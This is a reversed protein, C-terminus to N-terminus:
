KQEGREKLYKEAEEFLVKDVWRSVNLGLERLKHIAAITPMKLSFTKSVTQKGQALLTKRNEMKFIRRNKFEFLLKIPIIIKVIKVISMIKLYTNIGSIFKVGRLDGGLADQNLLHKQNVVKDIKDVM